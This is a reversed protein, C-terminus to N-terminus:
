RWRDNENSENRSERDSEDREEREERESEDERDFTVDEGLTVLFDPPTDEAERQWRRVDYWYGVSALAFLGVVIAAAAIPDIRDFPSVGFWVLGLFAASLATLVLYVRYWSIKTRPDNALFVTVEPDEVHGTVAERDPDYTALDRQVLYPIHTRRLSSRVSRVHARAVEEPTTKREWAAVQRALDDLSVPGSSEYLHYLVYRRRQNLVVGAVFRDRSHTGVTRTTGNQKSDM